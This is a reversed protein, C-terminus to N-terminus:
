CFYPHMQRGMISITCAPTQALFDLGTAKKYKEKVECMRERLFGIQIDSPIIVVDTEDDLCLLSDHMKMKFDM